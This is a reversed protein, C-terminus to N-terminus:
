VFSLIRFNFWLVHLVSSAKEAIPRVPDATSGIWLCLIDKIVTKLVSKDKEIVMKILDHIAMRVSRDWSVVCENFISAQLLSYLLPANICYLNLQYSKAIM